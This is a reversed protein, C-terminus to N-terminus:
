PQVAPIDIRDAAAGDAAREGFPFSFTVGAPVDSM